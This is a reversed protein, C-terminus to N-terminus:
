HGEPPHDPRGLSNFDGWKQPRNVLQKHAAVVDRKPKLVTQYYHSEGITAPSRGIRKALKRISATEAFGPEQLHLERLRECTTKGRPERKRKPIRGEAELHRILDEATWTWYAACFAAHGEPNSRHHADKLEREVHFWWRGTPKFGPFAQRMAALLKEGPELEFAPRVAPEPKPPPPPAPPGEAPEAAPGSPDPEEDLGLDAVARRLPAAWQDIQRRLKQGREMEARLPASQREMERVAAAITIPRSAKSRPDVHGDPVPGAEKPETM